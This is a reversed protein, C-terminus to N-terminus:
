AYKQLPYIYLCTGRKTFDSSFAVLITLLKVSKRTSKTNKKTLQIPLINYRIYKKEKTTQCRLICFTATLLSLTQKFIQKTSTEESLIFMYGNWIYQFVTKESGHGTNAMFDRTEVAKQKGCKKIHLLTSYWSLGPIKLVM